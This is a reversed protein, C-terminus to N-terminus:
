FGLKLKWSSNIFLGQTVVHLESGCYFFEHEKEGYVVTFAMNKLGLIIIKQVECTWKLNDEVEYIMEQNIFEFKGILKKGEQHAFSELDDTFIKGNAQGEWDLAVIFTFKHNRMFATSSAPEQLPIICGGRIFVPIWNKQIPYEEIDSPVEVHTFYDFWRGNPLKLQVHKQQPATVPIVLLAEGIQFQWDLGRLSEEDPYQLFMSRIVPTGECHYQYFLTYWYPLLEYRKWIAFRIVETTEENYMWPERKKTNKHAHGRFFPLFAGIQYWRRMLEESTEGYFGGVDAGCLSIGCGAIGVCMSVSVKLYEWDAGNDGTWVAGFKQSGAFFARSLVFPRLKGCSRLVLGEYSAKQMYMGYLNHVDRHEIGNEHLNSKPMTSECTDFVAPENMDNWIHLASTSLYNNAIFDAWIGRAEPDLFDVWVSEGTWCKGIFNQNTFDKVFLDLYNIM